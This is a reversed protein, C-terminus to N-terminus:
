PLLRLSTAKLRFGDYVAGTRSQEYGGKRDREGGRYKIGANGFVGQNWTLFRTESGVDHAVGWAWGDPVLHWVVAFM